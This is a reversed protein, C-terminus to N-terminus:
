VNRLVINRCNWKAKYNWIQNHSHAPDDHQILYTKTKSAFALWMGCNNGTYNEVAMDIVAKWTQLRTTIVVTKHPLAMDKIMAEIQAKERMSSGFLITISKDVGQLLGRWAQATCDNNSRSVELPMASIYPRYERAINLAQEHAVKDPYLELRVPYGRILKHWGWNWLIGSVPCGEQEAYLAQMPSGTISDFIHGKCPIITYGHPYQADQGQAEAPLGSMTFVERSAPYDSDYWILINDRGCYSAVGQIASLLCLQEGIGMRRDTKLRCDFLFPPKFPYIIDPFGGGRSYKNESRVKKDWERSLQERLVLNLPSKPDGEQDQM